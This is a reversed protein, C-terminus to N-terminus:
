PMISLNAKLPLDRSSPGIMIRFDGPEVLINMDVDLMQLLDPTIDFSLEKSEGAELHVRQFGKLELVPRSVSSLLDRIYLQVVEEGALKGTNTLTFSAVTTEGQDVSQKDLRLKSYEFTTYSLGFGFPFLPEGSLNNYDDGRGTPKHNYVLPLQAEHIPYTIPLRGAPNYDGFVIDAVAHGGEEGPYWVNLVASADDLWEGMTIASGGVLLVVVPKGTECIANILEEQNGPLSLMARDLFEGEEIGAAIIVMDAQQALQTAKEIEERHNTVVGNDWVLKIHANGRNEHFEIKITYAKGEELTVTETTTHYSEKRWRDILLEGDIYLRFGDNGELGIRYDGTEPPTLQGEWRIAYHDLPLKPDPAFLTWSFNITEDIRELVPNGQYTVNDFYTAKLGRGGAHSLFDTPVPHVNETKRSSGKTYQVTLNDGARSKIGELISVKGNGPGSYGGLRAETADEGIVLITNIDSSIPLTQNDNKLLVFSERAAKRAIGKHSKDTLLKEAEDVYPNEFLGLEFKARLVRSVADDIRAKPITGDLFPPIFLKYHEYETQFIVDLGNTIAQASAEPYDNATYHLVNAGGVASADSIVFGTFGWEGKLKKNLLWDNATAPSGDVANYATMVSRSGGQHFAAKFPVFHTEELFRESFHIPYSDRGGDGVNAVFHKPTSIINQREFAGVFAVGIASSLYPDEGYTEETRGWRVDNALNVVPTLIQRIGRASTEKAIADAVEGMLVTDFTAALGIAQPFATAGERVLGHLAEDFALMPIGLRTEEMFYRQIANVKKALTLANETANYSLLQGAAGGGKTGASVQFGFLGNKYQQKDVGDLDGPIMFLQWFKEEPTMRALLDKVRDEIPAHPNKYVPTQQARGLLTTLIVLSIVIIIRHSM